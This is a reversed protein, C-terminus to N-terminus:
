GKAGLSRWLALYEDTVADWSYRWVAREQAAARLRELLEAEAPDTLRTLAAALGAEDDFILGAHGVVERNEPTGFAIVANGAGM